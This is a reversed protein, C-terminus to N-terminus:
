TGTPNISLITTKCWARLRFVYGLIARPMLQLWEPMQNAKEYTLPELSARNSMMFQEALKIDVENGSLFRQEPSTHPHHIIETGTTIDRLSQTLIGLSRQPGQANHLDIYVDGQVETRPRGRLVPITLGDYSKHGIAKLYLQGREEMQSLLTEYDPHFRLPYLVLDTIQKKGEFPKIKFFSEVPGILDGNSVMSFCDLKLPVWSGIAWTERKSLNELEDEESQDVQDGNVDMTRRQRRSPEMENSRRARHQMQGGAVSYVKILTICEKQKLVVIDGPSYLHWLDEFAISELSGERISKCMEVKDKLESSVFNRLCSLHAIRDLLNQKRKTKKDQTKTEDHEEHGKESGDPGRDKAKDKQIVADVLSYSAEVGDEPEKGAELATHPSRHGNGDAYPDNM